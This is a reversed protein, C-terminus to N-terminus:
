GNISSGRVQHYIALYHWNPSMMRCFAFRMANNDAASCLKIKGGYGCFLGNFCHQTSLYKKLQILFNSCTVIPVVMSPLFSVSVQATASPITVCAANSGNANAIHTFSLLILM